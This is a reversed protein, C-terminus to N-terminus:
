PNIFFLWRIFRIIGGVIAWLVVWAGMVVRKGLRLISLLVWLHWLVVMVIYELVLFVLHLTKEHTWGSNARYELADMKDEVAKLQLLLTSTQEAAIDAIKVSTEKRTKTLSSQVNDALRRQRSEVTSLSANLNSTAKPFDHEFTTTISKQLGALTEM